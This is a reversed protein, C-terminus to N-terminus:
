GADHGRTARGGQARRSGFDGGGAPPTGTRGSGRSECTRGCLSGRSIRTARAGRRQAPYSRRSSWSYSGYCVRCGRLGVVCWRCCWWHRDLLREVSATAAPRGAPGRRRSPPQSKQGYSSVPAQGQGSIGFPKVPWREWQRSPTWPTQRNRVRDRFRQRGESSSRRRREYSGM